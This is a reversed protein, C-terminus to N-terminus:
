WVPSKVGSASYNFYSRNTVNKVNWSSCDLKLKSCKYFMGYMNTAKDTIFKNSIIVKELNTCQSFMYSFNTMNSTDFSSLNVEKLNTCKELFGELSTASSTEFNSLDLSTLSACGYFMWSIDAGSTDFNSVDISTLKACKHFISEFTIVDSTDFNSVDLSTLGSCNYFTFAMDTVNRTDFSSVNLEELSYCDYFMATMDKLKSTNFQSINLKKLNICGYFLTHMTTVNETNFNSLDLNLLNECARFMGQMNTVNITDFQSLDLMTIKACNYFMGMMNKVKSTNLNLLDFKICNKMEFFWGTTSIPAIENKFIVEKINNRENYWPLQKSNTYEYNEFGTYVKTIKKGEYSSGVSIPNESRIFVLSGDTESYFAYAEKKQELEEISKIEQYKKGQQQLTCTGEEQNGAEDINAARLVEIRTNNKVVFGSKEWNDINTLKTIIGTIPKTLSLSRQIQNGKNNLNDETTPYLGYGSEDKFTFGYKYNSGENDYQVLVYAFYNENSHLWEGFPNTGGRELSICEIPIAYITNNDIFDYESNNIDNMASNIYQSISTVVTRKKSNNIYKTVSPIAISMLLGLIVIVALLEILTFGKKNKM